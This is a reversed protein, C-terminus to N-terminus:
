SVVRLSPQEEVFSGPTRGTCRRFASVFASATAYGVRRAVVGVPLGDSLDAVAARMRAQTRWQGFSMGTEAVFLRSLTRTSAGVETAWDALEWPHAPDDLVAEVIGRCRLDVPMTLEVVSSSLQSGLLDLALSEAERRTTAARETGLHALLQRLLPQVAIPTTRNWLDPCADVDILAWGCTFSGTGTTRHPTGAAIWVGNGPAMAWSRGDVDVRFMGAVYWLLEYQAHSHTPALEPQHVVDVATTIVNLIAV